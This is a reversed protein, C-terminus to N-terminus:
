LWPNIGGETESHIWRAPPPHYPTAIPRLPWTPTAARIHIRRARGCNPQHHPRYIPAACRVRTLPPYDSSNRTLLARWLSLLQRDPYTKPRCRCGSRRQVQLIIEIMMRHSEDLIEWDDSSDSAVFRHISQAKPLKTMDIKTISTVPFFHFQSATSDLAIPFYAAGAALTALIAVVQHLNRSMFVGVFHEKTLGRPFYLSSVLPWVAFKSTWTTTRLTSMRAMSSM